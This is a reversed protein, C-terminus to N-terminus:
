YSDRLIQKITTLHCNYAPICGLAFHEFNTKKFPDLYPINKPPLLKNSLYYILIDGRLVELDEVKSTATPLAQHAPQSM